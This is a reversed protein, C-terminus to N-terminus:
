HSAGQEDVLVDGALEAVHDGRQGGIRGVLDPRDALVLGGLTRRLQDGPELQHRVPHGRRFRRGRRVRPQGADVRLDPAALRHRARQALHLVLTEREVHDDRMRAPALRHEDLVDKRRRRQQGVELKEIRSGARVDAEVGLEGGRGVVRRPQAHAVRHVQGRQVRAVGAERRRAPLVRPERLFVLRADRDDMFADRGVRDLRVRRRSELPLAADERRALGDHGVDRAVEFRVAAEVHEHARQGRQQGGLRMRLDDHDAAVLDAVARRRRVRLTPTPRHQVLERPGARREVRRAHVEDALQRVGLVHLHQLHRGRM